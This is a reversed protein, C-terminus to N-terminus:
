KEDKQEEVEEKPEKVAEENRAKAMLEEFSPENKESESQKFEILSRYMDSLGDLPYFNAVNEDRYTVETNALLTQLLLVRTMIKDVEKVLPDNEERGSIFYVKQADTFIQLMYLSPTCLSLDAVLALRNYYLEKNDMLAKYKEKLNTFLRRNFAEERLQQRRHSIYFPLIRADVGEQLLTTQMWEFPIEFEWESALKELKPRVAAIQCALQVKEEAQKHIRKLIEEKSLDPSRDDSLLRQLLVENSEELKDYAYIQAVSLAFGGKEIQAYLETLKKIEELDIFPALLSYSDFAFAVREDQKKGRLATQFSEPLDEWAIAFSTVLDWQQSESGNEKSESQTRPTEVRVGLYLNDGVPTDKVPEPIMNRYLKADFRKWYAEDFVPRVATVKLDSPINLEPVVLVNFAMKAPENLELQFEENEAPYVGGVTLLQNQEIYENLAKESMEQITGRLLQEGYRKAVLGAPVHGKRFGPLELNRAATKIEKNYKETYDAPAFELRITHVNAM